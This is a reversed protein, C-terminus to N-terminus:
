NELLSIEHCFLFNKISDPFEFKINDLGFRSAFYQLQCAPLPMCTPLWISVVMHIHHIIDIILIIMECVLDTYYVLTGRTEWLGDHNIDVLYIAYRFCPICM